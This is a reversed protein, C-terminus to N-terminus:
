LAYRLQSIQQFSMGKLLFMISMTEALSIEFNGSIFHGAGQTSTTAGIIELIRLAERVSNRGVGLQEALVREPPLKSGIKLNGNRIEQKIYDVVRVYARQPDLAKEMHEQM